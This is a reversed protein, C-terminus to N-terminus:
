KYSYLIFICLSLILPSQVNGHIACIRKMACTLMVPQRSSFTSFTLIVMTLDPQVSCALFPFFFHFLCCICSGSQCLLFSESLFVSLYVSRSYSLNFVYLCDVPHPSPGIFPFFDALFLFTCRFHLLPLRTNFLLCVVFGLTRHRMESVSGHFLQAAPFFFLAPQSSLASFFFSILPNKKNKDRETNGPM